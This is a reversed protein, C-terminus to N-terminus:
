WNCAKRLPQIAESTGSLDFLSIVSARDTPTFELALQQSQTMLTIEKIPENFFVAEGDTSLGLKRTTADKKDYRTRISIREELLSREVRSGLNVYADTTNESCRLILSPTQKIGLWDTYAENARLIMTVKKSDDMPSIDEKTVWGEKKKASENEEDSMKSIQSLLSLSQPEEDIKVAPKPKIEELNGNRWLNFLGRSCELTSMNSVMANIMPEILQAGLSLGLLELGGQEAMATGADQMIHEKAQTKLIKCPKVTGYAFFLIIVLVFLSGVISLGLTKLIKFSM